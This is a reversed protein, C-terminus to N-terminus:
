LFEKQCNHDKKNQSQHELEKTSEQCTPDVTETKRFYKGHAGEVIWTHPQRLVSEFEPSWQSM